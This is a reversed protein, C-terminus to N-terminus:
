AMWVTADVATPSPIVPDDPAAYRAVCALPVGTDALMALDLAGIGVPPMQALPLNSMIGIGSYHLLDPSLGVPYGHNAAMAFEGVFVPGGITERVLSDWLTQDPNNPGWGNWSLAHGIEHLFLKYPDVGTLKSPDVTIRIDATSGNPDIGTRLETVAGQEWLGLRNLPVAEVSTGHAIEGSLSATLIEVDLRAGRTPGLVASWADAAQWFGAIVSAPLSSGPQQMTFLASM